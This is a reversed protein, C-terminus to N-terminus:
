ALPASPSSPLWASCGPGPDDLLHRRPRGLVRRRRRGRHQALGVTGSLATALAQFHSVEGADNPDSYDGRVLEIAHKFARFQIFGFYLTFITAALILWGVILPFDVGGLPVTYFIIGSIFTAVPEFVSNIREDFTLAAPAADAAAEQARAALPLLLAGLAAPLTARMAERGHNRQVNDDLTRGARLARRYRAVPAAQVLTSSVGGFLRESLTTGGVRGVFIQCAGTERAVTCIVEAPNGYRIMGEVAVKTGKLRALAPEMVATQARTMEETRRKHREALEEQTLFTYPSWHLVHLLRLSAGSAEARSVAFDLARRSGEDDDYAVLLVNEM